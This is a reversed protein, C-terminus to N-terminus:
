WRDRDTLINMDKRARRQASAFSGTVGGAEVALGSDAAILHPREQALAFNDKKAQRDV